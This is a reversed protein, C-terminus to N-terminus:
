ISVTTGKSVYTEAELVALINQELDEPSATTFDIGDFIRDYTKSLTLEVPFAEEDRVVLPGDGDRLDLDIVVAEESRLEFPVMEDGKTAIGNLYFSAGQMLEPQSPMDHQRASVEDIPHYPGYTVTIGCYQGPDVEAGAFTFLDLDAAEMNEPLPGWYRELTITRGDCARVEVDATVIFAEVLTITWGEDNDFERDGLHTGLDPFRGDEPTAHHTVMVQLLSPSETDFLNDCGATAALVTLAAAATLSRATM